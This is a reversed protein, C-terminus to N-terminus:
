NKEPAEFVKAKTQIIICHLGIAEYDLQKMTMNPTDSWPRPIEKENPTQGTTIEVGKKKTHGNNVIYIHDYM